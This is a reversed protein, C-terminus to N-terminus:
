APPEKALDAEWLSLLESLADNLARATEADLRSLVQRVREHKECRTHQLLDRGKETVHVFVARRDTPEQRRAVLGNDVLRDVLSSVAGPTLGMREALQTMRVEGLDHMTVLAIFQTATLANAECAREFMRKYITLLREAQREFKVIEDTSSM